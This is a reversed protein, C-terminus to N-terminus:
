LTLWQPKNSTLDVFERKDRAELIGECDNLIM